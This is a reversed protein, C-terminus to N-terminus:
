GPRGSWGRALGGVVVAVAVVAGVAAVIGMSIPPPSLRYELVALTNPTGLGGNDAVGVLARSGNALRPGLTLGELNLGLEGQWILDKAVHMVPREALGGNVGAVDIATRTAVAYLRSSFPPLGPGGSRELALLRGTELWVLESLGSIAAGKFLRTFAHPPDVAYALQIDDSGAQPTLPVRAIRVVTSVGEAAAPGDAPVAEENAVWAHRADPEVALSEFGRNPRRGLLIQPVPHQGLERGSELDFERIAPTDEEALFLSGPRASRWAIAEYDHSSELTLLQLNEVQRPRGVQSLRLDFFLVYPSNDMVAAYRRGGIWAIGSLGTIRVARGLRDLAEDPLSLTGRPVIREQLSGGALAPVAVLLGLAILGTM